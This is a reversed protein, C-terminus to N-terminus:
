LLLPDRNNDRFNVQGGNQLDFNHDSINIMLNVRTAAAQNGSLFREFHTDIPCRSSTVWCYFASGTPEKNKWRLCAVVM